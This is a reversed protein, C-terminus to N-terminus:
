CSLLNRSINPDELVVAVTQKSQDPDMGFYNNLTAYNTNSIYIKNIVMSFILRGLNTLM